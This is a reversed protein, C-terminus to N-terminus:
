GEDDEVFWPELLAIKEEAQAGFTETTFLAVVGPTHATADVVISRVPRADAARSPEPVEPFDDLTVADLLRWEIADFAFQAGPKESCMRAKTQTYRTSEILGSM